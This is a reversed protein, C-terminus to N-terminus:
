ASLAETEIHRKLSANMRDRLQVIDTPRGLLEELDLRIRSLLFLSSHRLRVYVDVDSEESAEGRAYSGFIGIEEIGLCQGYQEKYSRLSTLIEETKLM